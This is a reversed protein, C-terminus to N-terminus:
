AEPGQARRRLTDFLRRAYPSASVKDPDLTALLAFSHRAKQYSGKTCAHTARELTAFVDRKPTREPETRRPLANRDLKFFREVAGPDALFWSEMCQVMLHANDDSVAPPKAWQDAQRERLFAWPSKNGDVPDESDVLLCLFEDPEASRLARCFDKFTEARSGGADINLMRGPLGAREFLARFGRHCATRLAHGTGGGEVYVKIRM